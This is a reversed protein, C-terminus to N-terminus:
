FERIKISRFHVTDGHDQLLIKGTALQGFGEYNKYKSKQVLAKFAQSHRDYEVLKVNNLWHEVKSGQVVIRARNWTHKFFRKNPNHPESLNEAPILDYLSGVTRNGGVGKSADPHVQDDLIQFELGIASYKALEDPLLFYKIGSNAGDTIKFDISLEFDTFEQDTCIDARLAPDSGANVTLIGDNATWTDNLKTKPNVANWGNMSEGNWININKWKILKGAKAFEGWVSHVQLAIFGESTWDDVLRSCQVGNLWTNIYPGIAEIRIHNWQGNKFALQAEPNETLPYIWGRRSEDYIGGSWRRASPDLELQYGHVRGDLYEKKSESRFQIGSNMEPDVWVEMELIFNDYTRKTALFTNPTNAKSKGIIMGDEVWYDATGNLKTWSSLDKGNFLPTWDQASLSAAFLTIVISLLYSKM